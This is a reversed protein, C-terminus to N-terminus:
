SKRQNAIQERLRKFAHERGEGYMLPMNVNFIGLLSYAMDEEVKTQRSTAWSIREDISFKSLPTGQLARVPIGTIEQIQQQLSIKDGLYKGNSCFFEVSPSALLEQLTWCQTFWRSSRFAPEWSFSSIQYDDYTPVDSLYVYCKASNHYWHFMSNIAESLETHNSRDICFCDVWFYQLGDRAAQNGCFEIKAYGPKDRGTSNMIDDFTVETDNAGWMHSLIAYRPTKDAAFSTFSFSGDSNLKLLRPERLRLIFDQLIPDHYNGRSESEAKLDEVKSWDMGENLLEPETPMKDGKFQPDLYNPPDDDLHVKGNKDVLISGRKSGMSNSDLDDGSYAVSMLGLQKLHIGIHILLKDRAAKEQSAAHTETAAPSALNGERLWPFIVALEEPVCNCIPCTYPPRERQLEGWEKLEEKESAYEPHIKKVHQDYENEDDFYLDEHDVDCCWGLPKHIEQIWNSCHNEDM